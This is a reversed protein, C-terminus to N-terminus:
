RCRQENTAVYVAHDAILWREIRVKPEVPLPKDDKDKKEEPATEGPCQTATYGGRTAVASIASVASRASRASGEIILAPQGTSSAGTFWLVSFPESLLEDLAYKALTGKFKASLDEGKSSLFAMWGASWGQGLPTKLTSQLWENSELLARVEKPKNVDLRVAIPAVASPVSMAKVPADSKKATANDKPTIQERAGRFSDRFYVLSAAIVVAALVAIIVGVNRKQKDSMIEDM